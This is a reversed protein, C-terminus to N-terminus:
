RRASTRRLTALLLWILELALVLAAAFSLLRGLVVPAPEAPAITVRDAALATHPHASPTAQPPGMALVLHYQADRGVVRAGGISLLNPGGGINTYVLQGPRMRLTASIRNDHIASPPIRVVPLTVGGVLPLPTYSYDDYNRAFVEAAQTFVAARPALPRPYAGVQQVAGISSAVLVPVITWGFLRLRPSAHRILVLICLASACVGMLAYSELRYSFQLTTYPRPLALLLGAHTMLVVLAATMAACIALLRGWPGGGRAGVLCAAAGAIVWLIALTPLSLVYDPVGPVTTARSLTFLHAFSVLGMTYHLTGHAVSYQSGIKTHGSYAIAPLLFWANLLGAPVVAAAVRLLGRRSILSRAQPIAALVLLALLAALTTAWLMTLNHSGFFVASSAALAVLPLLRARPARLVSLASAAIPPITSMALFEPWDGQGYVLTLYCSSSVFLLAPAQAPWRGLGAIRGLWYWGGYAALFGAIYSLVYAATFSGGLVLGLAATLAYITAGYFAYEPYLVSYQTNLFLSPAHDARLAQSQQWVYWLHHAWDGGLTSQTFLLPWSLVGM